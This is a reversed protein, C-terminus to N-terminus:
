YEQILEFGLVEDDENPGSRNILFVKARKRDGRVGIMFAIEKREPHKHLERRDAAEEVRRKGIPTTATVSWGTSIFYYERVKKMRFYRRVNQSFIETHRHHDVHNFLIHMDDAQDFGIAHGNMDGNTKCKELAAEVIREFREEFTETPEQPPRRHKQKM